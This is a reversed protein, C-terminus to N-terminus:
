NGTYVSLTILEPPYWRPLGIRYDHSFYVNLKLVPTFIVWRHGPASPYASCLHVPGSATAMQATLVEPSSKGSEWGLRSPVLHFKM